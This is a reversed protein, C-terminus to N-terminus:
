VPYTLPGLSTMAVHFHSISYQVIWRFKVHAATFQIAKRQKPDERESAFAFISDNSVIVNYGKLDTVYM